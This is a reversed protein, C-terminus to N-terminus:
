IYIFYIYIYIYIYLVRIWPPRPPGLWFITNVTMTIAEWVKTKDAKTISSSLRGRIIVLNPQVAERLVRCEHSSWNPRRCKKEQSMEFVYHTARCLVAVFYPPTASSFILPQWLVITVPLLSEGPPNGM